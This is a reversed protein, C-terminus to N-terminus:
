PRFNRQANPISTSAREGTPIRVIRDELVEFQERTVKTGAM